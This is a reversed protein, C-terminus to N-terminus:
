KRKLRVAALETLTGACGVGVLQDRMPLAADRGMRTSHAAPNRHRALEELLPPLQEVFWAGHELHRALWDGRARDHGLVWALQGLSQTRRRSLDVSEGDINAHAVEVPANRLATALTANVQVEVAKALEVLVASFDFAADRRHDRMLREATAVFTRGQPVIESWVRVGLVNDRLDAMLGGLGHRDADAEVWLRGDTLQRREDTSFFTTGDPRSVVLPLDVMGGYLSVPRDGYRLVRLQRLEEQVALTDDLVLARIDWLQFWFDCNLDRERYYGPTHRGDTVAVNDTTIAGVEAVYLSRYDTLYLQIEEREGVEADLALVENQHDLPKQRNVSRVKGWWVFVEDMDRGSESALDLLLNAHAELADGAYSPNWVGVLHRETM